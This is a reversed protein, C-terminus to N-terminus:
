KKKDKKKKKGKGKRVAAHLGVGPDEEVRDVALRVHTCIVDATGSDSKVIRGTANGWDLQLRTGGM